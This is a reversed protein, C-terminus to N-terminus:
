RLQNYFSNILDDHTWSLARKKLNIPTPEMQRNLDRQNKLPTVKVLKIEIHHNNWKITRHSPLWLGRDFKKYKRASVQTQSLLRLRLVHFQDQQIWLGSQSSPPSTNQLKLHIGYALHGGVRSLRVFDRHAEQGEQKLSDKSKEPLLAEPSIMKQIILLPRITSTTRFHFYPEIWHHSWPKSIVSSSLTMPNSPTKAKPTKSRLSNSIKSDSAKSGSPDLYHKKHNKYIFYLHLPTALGQKSVVKLSMSQDGGITWIERVVQPYNKHFFTVDQEIRYFGQGHNKTTRYLVTNLKLTYSLSPLGMVLICLSLLTPILFKM